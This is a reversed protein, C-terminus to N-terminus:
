DEAQEGDLFDEIRCQLVKAIGASAQLSPNKTGREVQNLMPQSIGVQEAVYVQSLDLAMRRRRINTGVSM